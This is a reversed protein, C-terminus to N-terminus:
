QTTVDTEVLFRGRVTRVYGDALTVEVDYPWVGAELLRSEALTLYVEFVGGVASTVLIQSADASSKAVVAVAQADLDTRKVTFKVVAAALDVAVGDADTLSIEIPGTDGRYRVIQGGRESM